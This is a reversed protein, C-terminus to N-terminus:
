RSGQQDLWYSMELFKVRSDEDLWSDGNGWWDAFKRDRIFVAHGDRYAATVGEGHGSKVADPWMNDAAIVTRLGVRDWPVGTLGARREFSSETHNAMHQNDPRRARDISPPWPNYPTNWALDPDRQSPCFFVQPDDLVDAVWLLGFNRWRGFEGDSGEPLAVQFIQNRYFMTLWEPHGPWACDTNPLPDLFAQFSEPGFGNTEVREMRWTCSSLKYNIDIGARALPPLAKFTIAYIEWANALGRLHSGCVVRRTQERARKMSPLLISILLAIISVVVLLEVLSFARGTRAWRM